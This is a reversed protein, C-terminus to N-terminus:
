EANCDHVEKLDLEEALALVKEELEVLGQKQLASIQASPVDGGLDEVEIGIDALQLMLNEPDAYQSDCKNIAIVMPLDYKKVLNLVEVTQKQIGEIASIVVIVIDTAKAGRARMGDFVEHGPTDIFTIYHGSETVFSFAATTQTISGFESEVLNSNRFSDLLTTKGHDVHGMITVIPPRRYRQKQDSETFKIQTEFEM